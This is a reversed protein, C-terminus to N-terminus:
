QRLILQQLLYGLMIHSFINNCKHMVMPLLLTQLIARLLVGMSLLLFLIMVLITNLIPGVVQQLPAEALNLLIKLHLLGLGYEILIHHHTLKTITQRSFL